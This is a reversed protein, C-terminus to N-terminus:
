WNLTVDVKDWEWTEPAETAATFAASGLFDDLVPDDEIAEVEFTAGGEIPSVPLMELGPTGQSFTGTSPVGEHRKEGSIWIGNTNYYGVTIVLEPEGSFWEGDELGKTAYETLWTPSYAVRGNGTGGGGRGDDCDGPDPGPDSGGAEEPCDESAAATLGAIEAAMHSRLEEESEFRGYDFSRRWHDGVRITWVIASEGDDPDQIVSGPMDAQRGIRTGITEKPRIVFVADYSDLVEDAGVRQNTGTPEYVMLEPADPDM